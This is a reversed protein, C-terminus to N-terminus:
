RVLPAVPGTSPENVITAVSPRAGRAGGLRSRHGSWRPTSTPFRESRRVVADELHVLGALRARTDIKGRCWNPPATTASYSHNASVDVPSSCTRAAPTARGHRRVPEGGALIEDDLVDEIEVEVVQDEDGVIRATGM